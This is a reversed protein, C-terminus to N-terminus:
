ILLHNPTGKEAYKQTENSHESFARWKIISDLVSVLHSIKEESVKTVKEQCWLLRM